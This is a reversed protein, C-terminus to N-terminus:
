WRAQSFHFYYAFDAIDAKINSSDFDTQPLVPLDLPSAYYGRQVLEKEAWSLFGSNKWKHALYRGSLLLYRDTNASPSRGLVDHGFLSAPSVKISLGLSRARWSLDVDELYMFFNPDFGGLKQYVDRRILLCAGSAWPTELTEPDYPKLHEEPFQRAEILSLPNQGSCILLERLMNYHLVGDPNLCLFWEVAPNSFAATMLRNMAKGFGVNGQSDFKALPLQADLWETQEGNDVIFIETEVPLDKTQDVALHISKLLQELQEQPNNFTIIGLVLKFRQNLFLGNRNELDILVDGGEPDKGNDPWRKATLPATTDREYPSSGLMNELTSESGTRCFNDLRKAQDRILWDRAYLQQNKEKLRQEHEKLLQAQELLLQKKLRIETELSRQQEASASLQWDKEKLQRETAKLQHEKEELLQTKENLSLVQEELSHTRLQAETELTQCHKSISHLQQEVEQRRQESDFYLRQQEDVQKLTEDLHKSTSELRQEMEQLQQQAVSIGEDKELLYQEARQLALESELLRQEISQIAEDSNIQNNVALRLTQADMSVELRIGLQFFFERIRHAEEESARLFPQLSKPYDSGIALLGLGHSHIFEFHPHNAKCEEWFKWVGFDDERVNVDHFLVVGRRSMKPRWTEYDRKVEEYTHFGDIHLLDISGELFHSAAADFTSQILRSFGGYLPDHFAKLNALVEPGYFGSQPDGEWTDIAYCRAKIEFTKVAQCFASYSVGYYTGLEVVLTPKLLEVLLMAFPVHGTWTSPAVRSPLSFCIPHNLPNFTEM